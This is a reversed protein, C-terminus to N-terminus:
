QQDDARCRERVLETLQTQSCSVRRAPTSGGSSGCARTRLRWRGRPWGAPPAEQQFPSRRRAQAPSSRPASLPGSRPRCSLLCCLERAWGSAPGAM